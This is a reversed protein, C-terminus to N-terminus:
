FLRKSISTLVRMVVNQRPRGFHIEQLMALQRAITEYSVTKPEHHVVSEAMESPQSATHLFSRNKYRRAASPNIPFLDDIYHLVRTRSEVPSHYELLM